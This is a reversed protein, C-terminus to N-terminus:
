KKLYYTNNQTESEYSLSRKLLIGNSTTPEEFIEDGDSDNTIPILVNNIRYGPKPINAIYYRGCSMFYIVAVTSSGHFITLVKLHIKTFIIKNEAEEFIKTNILLEYDENSEFHEALYGYAQELKPKSMMAQAIEKEDDKDSIRENIVEVVYRCKTVLRTENAEKSTIQGQGDKLCTPMKTLLGYNRKLRLICDKYGRDLIALDDKSILDRLNKTM